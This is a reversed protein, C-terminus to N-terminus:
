FKGEKIESIKFDINKICFSYLNKGLNSDVKPDLYKSDVLSNEVLLNNFFKNFVDILQNCYSDSNYLYLKEIKNESPYAYVMRFVHPPIISVPGNYICQKFDLYVLLTNSLFFNKLRELCNKIANLITLSMMKIEEKNLDKKVASEAIRDISRRLFLVYYMKAQSNNDLIKEMRSKMVLFRHNVIKYLEPHYMIGLYKKESENLNDWPKHAIFATIPTEQYFNKNIDCNELMKNYLIIGRAPDLRSCISSNYDKKFIIQLNKLQSRMHKEIERVFIDMFENEELLYYQNKNISGKILGKDKLSNLIRSAKNNSIELKGSVFDTDIPERHDFDGSIVLDLFSSIEHYYGIKMMKILNKIAQIRDVEM